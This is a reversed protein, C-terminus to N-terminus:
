TTYMKVLGKELLAKEKDSWSDNDIQHSSASSPDATSL